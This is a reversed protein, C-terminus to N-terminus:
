KVYIRGQGNISKISPDYMCEASVPPLTFDGKTVARVVYKYSFKNSMPMDTFMLFRDDRIDIHGPEFEKSNSVSSSDSTKLRPNEIEFCAPLLDSIVVNKYNLDSDVSLEVIVVEGQAINNLDLPKGDRNLFSRRIKIGSDSEKIKGLPVGSVNWYYYVNGKGQVSITVDSGSLDVDKVLAPEQDTFNTIIKEGLSVNGSYEKDQSEIYRAYKGLALLAMANDQTTKWRGNEMSSELRKVLVPVMENEPAVDMYASLAVANQKTYSNLSDGTEQKIKEDPFSKGLMESIGKDDGLYSLAVALHYRSYVPLKDEIEQLRRIWSSKVRGAKALVMCSYAKLDLSYDEDKGSLIKELYDLAVNKEFQPISYGAKDAEVLFDTAYVSGYPYPDKYGPWFSFGGTYTQMSLIRRIGAEIYSDVSRNDWSKSEVFKSIDKLYLLPFVTSTTQEICGYLYEVLFKIGGALKIGPLSMVSLSTQETGKLWNGPIAINKTEPAKISGSGSIATFPSAPRVSIEVESVTSYGGLVAHITIKGKQPIKPVEINFSVFGESNNKVEVSIKNEENIVFGESTEISINAIGDKGSTNFVSVPVVFKDESSLFRPFTPKVMLPESVKIDSTANGFDDTGASVVMVKLNGSFQPVDFTVRAKGQEDAVVGSKWLVVPKLRKASIPNLHKKPDFGKGASPTSDGGIKEKGFEPMLLSYIDSTSIKQGRKGFFFEFPDPTEFGTLRLVGEDVLAVSLESPQPLGEANTVEINLDVTKNPLTSEPNSVNVRLKHQSNDFMIPIIGYARHASWKEEPIVPKIVTVSCYANPAFDETISIPIEQTANELDVVKSFLVTDKSITLLARGKFPAKVLLTAEDGSKYIKKDLELEIRDPREMAWPMYGYGSCHFKVSATHTGEEKGKIRVIYSGYSDPTFTFKGNAQMTKLTDEFVTEEKEDSVYRYRGNEDKKLVSNWIIKSVQVALEDVSVEEGQPSVVVYDFQVQEGEKVYGENAQRIGIYYSYPDVAVKSYATVARGGLEKVSTTIVVDLASPPQIEKPITIEFDTEGQDNTDKFGHHVTKRPFEKTSDSFSYDNFKKITFDIPRLSYNIEVLRNSAPAGFFQEAKVKLPIAEETKYRKEPVDVDVKIRDPMFEEVNFSYSGLEKDNGPLKLSVKYIGTLSYDPIPIDIDVTGFESLIGTVKDFRMGDPKKIDFLVPFSEPVEIGTGRIIARLHVIEGPRYVGRDSYIFGEDGSSLYPRGEIDFVTESISCKELEIFSLDSDNSATVVFPKRDKSWDVDEFHVFGNEDSIGELIQQNTKSFVKVTSNVVPDTTSISNLWVLLDSESKKAVIGIDTTLLLKSDRRWSSDDDAVRMFFLGHSDGSLIDRLDILVEKKENREAAVNIEKEVVDIGLDDPFSYSTMNNLLYVVNNAYVKHAEIKLKDINVTEVPIIQNGELSMYMGDVKFNVDPDYDPIVINTTFSEKLAEDTASPMGKLIEVEYLEGPKFDGKLEIGRYWSEIYFDIQPTISVYGKIKDLDVDRSLDVSIYTNTGSAHPTVSDVIFEKKTKTDQTYVQYSKKIPWLVSRIKQNIMTFIGPSEKYGQKAELLSIIKLLGAVNIVLFIAVIWVWKKRFIALM